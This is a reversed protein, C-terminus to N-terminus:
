GAKACRDVIGEDPQTINRSPFKALELRRLVSVLEDIKLGHLDGLAHDSQNWFRDGSFVHHNWHRQHVFSKSDGHAIREVEVHDVFQSEHHIALDIRNDRRFFGDLRCDVTKVSAGFCLRNVGHQHLEGFCCNVKCLSLRWLGLSLFGFLISRDDPQDVQDDRFRDVHPGAVNM